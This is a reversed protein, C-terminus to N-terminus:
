EPFPGPFGRSHTASLACRVKLGTQSIKMALHDVAVNSPAAVLVQGTGSSAMHYVLAASTVTKGTGPPGQILSLPQQLVSKVAHLQPFSHSLPPSLNTGSSIDTTKRM